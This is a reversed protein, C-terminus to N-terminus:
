AHHRVHRQRRALFINGASDAALGSGAMWVAGENGNPTIDIVATQALTRSNYAMVWGTYPRADCHSTFALYITGGYELLAAREAFQAPNFIVQGNQSGDGTGPYTAAIEVPGGFLEAGTRLNLAHLRQHYHGSSDKSMAVLYMAGDGFPATSKDIVPTSTIGIKPTIQGCGHDDSPTEGTSLVSVRWYQRGTSADFSYVSDNETVVYLTNVTAAALLSSTSTSLSRTSKATLRTFASKALTFQLERQEHTLTTEQLTSGQRFVNYHYTLVDTPFQIALNPDPLRRLHPIRLAPRCCLFRSRM